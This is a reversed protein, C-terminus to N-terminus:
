IPLITRLDVKKYRSTDTRTPSLQTSYERQTYKCAIKLRHKGVHFEKSLNKQKKPTIPQDCFTQLIHYSVGPRILRNISTYSLAAYRKNMKDFVWISDQDAEVRVMEIGLMPQVSIVLLEDRWIKMTCGMSYQHQDLELTVQARQTIAQRSHPAHKSVSCASLLLTCAILLIPVIRKNM